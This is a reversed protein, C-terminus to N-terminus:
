KRSQVHFNWQLLMTFVIKLAYAILLVFIIEPWKEAKILYGMFDHEWIKAAVLFWVVMAFSAIFILTREILSLKRSM